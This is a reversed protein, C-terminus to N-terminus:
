TWCSGPPAPSRGGSGYRRRATFGDCVAGVDPQGHRRGMDAAEPGSGHVIERKHFRLAHRIAATFSFPVAGMERVLNEAFKDLEATSVGPKVRSKLELLVKAVVQSAKRM